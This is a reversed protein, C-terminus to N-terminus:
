LAQDYRLSNVLMHSSYRKSLSANTEPSKAITNLILFLLPMATNPIDVSIM